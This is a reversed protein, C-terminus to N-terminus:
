ATIAKPNTVMTRRQAKLRKDRFFCGGVENLRCSDSKRSSTIKSVMKADCAGLGPDRRFASARALRSFLFIGAHSFRRFALKDQFLPFDTDQRTVGASVNRKLETVQQKLANIEDCLDGLPPDCKALCEPAAGGIFLFNLLAVADSIDRAGDGNIDGCRVPSAPEGQGGRSREANGLWVVGVLVSLVIGYGILKKM